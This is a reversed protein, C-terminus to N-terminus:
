RPPKRPPEIRGSQRIAELGSMTMATMLASALAADRERLALMMREHDLYARQVHDADIVAMRLMSLRMRWASLMKQLTVNGCQMAWHEHLRAREQVFGEVDGRAALGKMRQWIAEGEQLSAASANAVYLRIKMANLEARIQYLEEIDRWSIQAVRPRRRPLIEVLGEKELLMLAERVPTRSTGFRAALEVSNLDAGAPLDGDLIRRTVDAAIKAVLSDGLDAFVEAVQEPKATKNGSRGGEIVRM